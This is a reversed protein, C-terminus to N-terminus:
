CLIVNYLLSMHIVVPTHPVPQKFLPYKSVNAEIQKETYNHLVTAIQATDDVVFGRPAELKAM